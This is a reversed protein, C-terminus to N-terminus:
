GREKEETPVNGDYLFEVNKCDTLLFKILDVEEDCITIMGMQPNSIKSHVKEKYQRLYKRDIYIRITQNKHTGEIKPPLIYYEIDNKKLENLITLIPRTYPLEISFKITDTSTTEKYEQLEDKLREEDKELIKYGDYNKTNYITQIDFKRQLLSAASYSYVGMGIKDLISNKKEKVTPSPIYKDYSPERSSNIVYGDEGDLCITYNSCNVKEAFNIAEPVEGRSIKIIEINDNKFVNHKELLEEKKLLEKQYEWIKRYSKDNDYDENDIEILKKRIQNEISVYKDTPNQKEKIAKELNIKYERIMRIKKIVETIISEDIDEINEILEVDIKEKLIEISTLEEQSLSVGRENLMQQIKRYAQEIREIDGILLRNEIIEDARTRSGFLRNTEDEIINQSPQMLELVKLKYNVEKLKSIYINKQIGTFEEQKGVLQEYYEKLDEFLRQEGYEKYKETDELYIVKDIRKYLNEACKMLYERHIVQYKMDFVEKKSQFYLELQVEKEIISNSGDFELSSVVKEGKIAKMLEEQRKEQEEVKWMTRIQEVELMNQELENVIQRLEEAREPMYVELKSAKLKMKEFEQYMTELVDTSKSEKGEEVLQEQLKEEKKRKFLKM